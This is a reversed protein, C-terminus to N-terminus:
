IKEQVNDIYVKQQKVATVFRWSIVSVLNFLMYVSFVYKGPTSIITGHYSARIAWAVSVLTEGWTDIHDFVKSDLYKTVLM